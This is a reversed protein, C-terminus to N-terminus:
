IREWTAGGDATRFRRGDVSTVTATRADTAQVATLDAVVPFALRRWQRGDTTLLVTGARGVVWCVTGSPSTGATLDTTVGSAAEQWTGGKDASYDAAGAAGIRWRHTGDPSVVEIPPPMVTVTEQLAAIGGRTPLAAPGPPQRASAASGVPAPASPAPASVENRGETTAATDRRELDADAPATKEQAGFQQAQRPLEEAPQEPPRSVARRRAVSSAQEDASAATQDLPQGETSRAGSPAAQDAAGPTAGPETQPATTERAATRAQEPPRTFEERPVAVWIAIATATAAVPVLWRASLGRRWWPEPSAQPPATRAFAALTTQCAACDAVHEQALALQRGALAGDAWAALTEADLCPGSVPTRSSTGLSERLLHELSEDRQSKSSM